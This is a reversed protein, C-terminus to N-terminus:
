QYTPADDAWLNPQYVTGTFWTAGNARDRILFLFPRDINIVTPQPEEGAMANDDMALATVAAAKIGQESFDINAQHSAASLYLNSTAMNSFDAQPTFASKVGLTELDNKFDLQYDFKFKPISLAIGDAPTSAPTTNSLISNVADADLTKIYEDLNSTPMIAVFELEAESGSALPLTVLTADDTTAYEVDSTQFTETMTTAEVEEGTGLTFTAGRTNSAEFPHQWDMQIALANALVMETDPTPQLGINNILGFTKQSVWSDMNTSSEFADYIIEANYDSTVTSTYAPLVSDQFTDRIFVANALSLQNEINQYKPIETNQLLTDLEAKTTGAAGADLLALGNKISLPSYILNQGNSELQLFDYDLNSSATAPETCNCEPQPAPAEDKPLLLMLAYVGVGGILIGCIFGLFAALCKHSKHCKSSKPPQGGSPTPQEPQMPQAPHNPQNLQNPQAAQSPRTPQASQGLQASHSPQASHSLQAPRVSQAPQAPQTARAPRRRLQQGPRQLPRPASSPQQASGGHYTKTFEEIVNRDDM